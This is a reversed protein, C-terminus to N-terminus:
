GSPLEQAQTGDQLQSRLLELDAEVSERNPHDEPAVELFVEFSLVTAEVDGMAACTLGLNLWPSPSRPQIEALAEFLARAMVYIENEYFTRAHEDVTTITEPDAEILRKAAEGVRHHHRLVVLSLYLTRCAEVDEPDIRILDDAYRSVEAWNERKMALRLLVRHPDPFTPDLSAAERFKLEAARRKDTEDSKADDFEKVAENYLEIAKKRDDPMLYSPRATPQQEILAPPPETESIREARKMTLRISTVVLHRAEIAVVLDDYGDLSLHLERGPRLKDATVAFAGDRDTTHQEIPDAGPATRLVVQVGTLPRGRHDVVTGRYLEGQASAMAGVMLLLGAPVIM